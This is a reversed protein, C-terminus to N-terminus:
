PSSDPTASPAPPQSLTSPVDKPNTDEPLFNRRTTQSSQDQLLRDQPEQVRVYWLRFGRNALYLGLFLIPAAAAVALIAIRRLRQAQLFNLTLDFEGSDCEHRLQIAEDLKEKLRDAEEQLRETAAQVQNTRPALFDHHSDQAGKFRELSEQVKSLAVAAQPSTDGFQQVADDYAARERQLLTEASKINTSTATSRETLLNVRQTQQALRSNAEDIGKGVDSLRAEYSNHKWQIRMGELQCQLQKESLPLFSYYLMFVCLGILFIGSLAMFKYLNDTPPNPLPFM